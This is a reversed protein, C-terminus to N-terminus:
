ERISFDESQLSLNPSYFPDSNIYKSWKMEFYDREQIARNQQELTIDAGRSFSELHFLEAYPTYLNEYGISHLKLCFDVDNFAVKLNESDFGDVEIFKSKKVVLCAATVALWQQQSQLRRQYGAEDRKFFKFPHGAVGRMGLVIGAHQIRHDSYVLKAGVAGTEPRRAISVMEKLWGADM